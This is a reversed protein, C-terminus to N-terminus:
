GRLWDEMQDVVQKNGALCWEVGGAEVKRAAGGAAEVLQVWNTGARRLVTPTAPVGHEAAWSNYAAVTLRPGRDEIARRLLPLNSMDDSRYRGTMLDLYGLDTGGPTSAYLRDHGYRRWRRVNWEAM